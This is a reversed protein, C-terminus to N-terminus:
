PIVTIFFYFTYVNLTIYISKISLFYDWYIIMHFINLFFFFLLFITQPFSLSAYLYSFSPHYCTKTLFSNVNATLLIDSWSFLVPFHFDLCLVTTFSFMSLFAPLSYLSILYLSFSRVVTLLIPFTKLSLRLLLFLM